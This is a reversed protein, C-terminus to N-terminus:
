ICIHISDGGIGVSADNIYLFFRYRAIARDYAACMIISVAIGVYVVIVYFAYIVGVVVLIVLARLLGNLKILYVLVVLASFNDIIAIGGEAHWLFLQHVVEICM